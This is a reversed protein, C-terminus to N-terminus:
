DQPIVYLRHVENKYRPRSGTWVLEGPQWEPATITEPGSVLWYACDQGEPHRGPRYYDLMILIDPRADSALCAGEPLHRALDEVLPKYGWGADAWPRFLSMMLVWTLVMGTAWVLVPRVKAKPFLPIAVLWLLTAIAALAVAGMAVSGNVYNPTLKAMHAAAQLPWGLEIASFYAWFTFAFFLFTLVGFWYMAQAAGRKLSALGFAALLALPILLPLLGSERSYGPWHAMIALIALGALLPHLSDVRTWRRHEHWLAWLALPWVPWAFWSLDNLIDDTPRTPALFPALAQWATAGSGGQYRFFWLGLGILAGVTLGSLLARRTVPRRWEPSLLAGLGVGLAGLLDLGARSGALVIMALILILTALGPRRRTEALGLFFLAYGMLLAAEPLLAHARLMLGLCGLLALAAPAGYGPGWLARAALGTCLFAGLMLVGNVLRAADLMPLWPSLLAVFGATLQEYFPASFAVSTPGPHATSMLHALVQTEEAKWIDRGTLGFFSWFVLILILWALQNRTLPHV